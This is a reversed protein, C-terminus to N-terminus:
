LIKISDAPIKNQNLVLYSDPGKNFLLDLISCNPTFKNGFLQHYPLHYSIANQIKTKTRFDQKISVTNYSTTNKVTITAIKLFKNILEFLCNNQDVLYEMKKNFIDEFYPWYYEFYASNNYAAHIARSQLIQWPTDYNIKVENSLMKNSRSVLPISLKYIGQSTLIDTHNRLSQKEFYEYHEIYINAYQMLLTWYNISGFYASPFIPIDNNNEM